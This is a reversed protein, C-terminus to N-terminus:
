SPDDTGIMRPGIEVVAPELDRRMHVLRDLEVRARQPELFQAGLQPLAEYEGRHVRGYRGNGLSQASEIRNNRPEARGSVAPHQVEVHYALRVPLKDMLVEHLRVMEGEHVPRRESLLFRDADGRPEVRGIGVADMARNLM